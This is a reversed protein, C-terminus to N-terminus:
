ASSGSSSATRSLEPLRADDNVAQRVARSRLITDSGAYVYRTGPRADVMNLASVEAAAAGSQYLDGQPNGGSETYLGSAM